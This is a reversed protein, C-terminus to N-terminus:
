ADHAAGKEEEALDDDWKHKYVHRKQKISEGAEADIARSKFISGKKKSIVLKVSPKEDFDDGGGVGDVSCDTKEAQEAAAISTADIDNNNSATTKLEFGSSSGNSQQSQRKARGGRVKKPEDYTTEMAQPPTTGQMPLANVAQQSVAEAAATTTVSSSSDTSLLKDAPIEDVTSNDDAPLKRKRGYSRAPVSVPTPAEIM